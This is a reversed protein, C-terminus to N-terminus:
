LNVFAVSLTASLLTLAVALALIALTLELRLQIRRLIMGTLQASEVLAVTYALLLLWVSPDLLVNLLPDLLTASKAVSLAKVGVGVSILTFAAFFPGLVPAASALVNGVNGVFFRYVVKDRMTENSLMSEIEKVNELYRAYVEQLLPEPAPLSAGVAILTVLSVLAVPYYKLRLSLQKFEEMGTYGIPACGEFVQHM